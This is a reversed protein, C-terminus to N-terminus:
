KYYKTEYRCCLGDGFSDRIFFEYCGSPDVCASHHYEKNALFGSYSWIRRNFNVGSLLDVLEFRTERPYKDTKLSLEVDVCSPESPPEKAAEVPASLISEEEEEEETTEQSESLDVEAGGGEFSNDEMIESDNANDNGNSCAGIDISEHSIFDGGTAVQV